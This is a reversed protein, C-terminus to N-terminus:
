KRHTINQKLVAAFVLVLLSVFYSVCLFGALTEVFLVVLFSLFVKSQPEGTLLVIYSLKRPIRCLFEWGETGSGSTAIINRFRHPFFLSTLM